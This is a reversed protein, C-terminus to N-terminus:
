RASIELSRMKAARDDMHQTPDGLGFALEM